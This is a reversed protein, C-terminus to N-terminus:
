SHSYTELRPGKPPNETTRLLPLKDLVGAADIAISIDRVSYEELFSSFVIELWSTSTLLKSLLFCVMLGWVQGGDDWLFFRFFITTKTHAPLSNERMFNKVIGGCYSVFLFLIFRLRDLITVRYRPASASLCFTEELLAGPAREGLNPSEEEEIVTATDCTSRTKQAIAAADSDPESLQESCPTPQPSLPFLDLLEQDLHATQDLLDDNNSAAQDPCAPTTSSTSPDHPGQDSRGSTTATQQAADTPSLVAHDAPPLACTKDAPAVSILSRTGQELLTFFDSDSVNEPIPQQANWYRSLTQYCPFIPRGGFTCRGRLIEWCGRSLKTQMLIVPATRRMEQRFSKSANDVARKGQETNLVHREENGIELLAQDFNRVSGFFPLLYDQLFLETKQKRRKLQLGSDWPNTHKLLQSSCFKTKFTDKTETNAM